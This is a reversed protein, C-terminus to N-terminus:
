RQGNQGGVLASALFRMQKRVIDKIIDETAKDLRVAEIREMCQGVYRDLIDQENQSPLYKSM